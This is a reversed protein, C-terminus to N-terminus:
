GIGMELRIYLNEGEVQEQNLIENLKQYASYTVKM